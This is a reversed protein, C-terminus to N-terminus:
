GSLLDSLHLNQFADKKLILRLARLDKQFQEARELPQGAKNALDAPPIMLLGDLPQDALSTFFNSESISDLAIEAAAKVELVKDLATGTVMSTDLAALDGIAEISVPLDGLITSLHKSVGAIIEISHGALNSTRELREAPRTTSEFSPAEAKVAPAKASITNAQIGGTGSVPRIPKSPKPPDYVLNLNSVTLEGPTESLFILPVSIIDSEELSVSEVVLHSLGKPQVLRVKAQNAGDPAGGTWPHEPFDRGDLPLIVPNGVATGNNLWRLEARAREGIPKLEAGKFPEPWNGIDPWVGMDPWVDITLIYRKGPAVGATQILVADEPGDGRLVIGTQGIKTPGPDVWGSTVWASPLPHDEQAGVLVDWRLFSGNDLSEQTPKFSVDNILLIGAPPQIFRVAAKVSGTPATLRIEYQFVRTFSIESTQSNILQNNADLWQVEWSPQVLTTEKVEMALTVLTTRLWYQPNTSFQFSFLYSCGGSVAIDQSIVTPEQLDESPQVGDACIQDLNGLLSFPSVLEAFISGNGNLRMIRGSIIQWSDIRMSCWPFLEVTGSTGSTSFITLINDGNSAVDQGMAKNIASVVEELRTRAPVSGACDIKVPKNGNISLRIFRQVSLDVGRRLDVSSLISPKQIGLNAPGFLKITADDYQPLEFNGNIILDGVGCPSKGAPGALYNGLETSFDIGFDVRGLPAFKNFGVRVAGPEKGIQLQVPISYKAPTYRLRFIAQLPGQGAKTAATRWYLGGDSSGQLSIAGADSRRTEWYAKGSVSQIMLWYRKAALIRFESPLKASGWASGGPVPREVSIDASILVTGSPKGDADDQLALNLGTLGTETNGLPLDIRSVPTEQDVQIPQALTRDPSIEVLDTTVSEGISGVVVRSSDFTGQIKGGTGPVPIAGRPLKVTTLADDLGPLSSYGYPLTAEPLYSPLVSQQIKYDISITIDLRSIADSHVILPLAYFGDKVEAGALFANLVAAFDVSTKPTAMEGIFTWFPPMDGLRLSVNTPVSRISVKTIKIQDSDAGKLKFRNVILGPLPVEKGNPSSLDVQLEDKNSNPVWFTGDKAIAIYAGGGMDVQMKPANPAPSGGSGTVGSLMRRAHFDVEVSSSPTPTCFVGWDNAALERGSPNDFAFTEIFNSEAPIRAPITLTVIAQTISAGEPLSRLWILLDGEFPDSGGLYTTKLNM